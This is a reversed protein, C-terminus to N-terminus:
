AAYLEVLIQAEDPPYGLQGLHLRYRGEDVIGRKWAARMQAETIHRPNEAVEFQWLDLLRERAEAPMGIEDLRAIAATTDIERDVFRRRVVAVVQNRFARAEKADAIDLVFEAGEPKYGLGQLMIAADERTIERAQYLAVIEGKALNKEPEAALEIAFRTLTQAVEPTYGLDLYGRQVRAEDIVGHEFMRRLDIRGPVAFALDILRGRWFPMVDLSRLLLELDPREIIGRHLMRFGQEPSPLDWHAAWYDQADSRALGHRAAETAFRAPFDEDLRFRRRVEPTYVERVAFRVLDQVPVLVRRLELVDDVYENRMGADRMARRVQSENMRGRNLLDLLEGIPPPHGALRTLLEFRARTLANRRAEAGTDFGGALGRAEAEAVMSPTLLENALGRLVDAWERRITGQAIGRDFRAEDIIGRRLAALLEMPGLSQGHIRTLLEFRRANVGSEAAEAAGAEMSIEARQQLEALDDPTLRRSQFRSEMEAAVDRLPPEFAQAAAAGAGFGIINGLVRNKIFAFVAV